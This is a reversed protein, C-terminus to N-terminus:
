ALKFRLKERKVGIVKTIKSDKPWIYVRGAQFTVVYGRDELASVSILTKKMGSFYMDKVM